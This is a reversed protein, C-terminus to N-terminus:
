NIVFKNWFQSKWSNIKISHLNYMQAYVFCDLATTSIWTGQMSDQTDCVYWLACKHWSPNLQPLMSALALEWLSVPYKHASWPNLGPPPPIPMTACALDQDGVGPGILGVCVAQIEALLNSTTIQIARDPHRLSLMSYFIRVGFYRWSIGLKCQIHGAQEM